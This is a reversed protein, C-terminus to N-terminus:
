RGTGSCVIPYNINLTHGSSATLFDSISATQLNPAATDFGNGQVISIFSAGSPFM